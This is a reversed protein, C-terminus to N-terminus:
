KVEVYGFDIPEIVGDVLWQANDTAVVHLPFQMTHYSDATQPNASLAAKVTVLVDFRDGPKVKEQEVPATSFISLTMTSQYPSVKGPPKATFSSTTYGPLQGNNKTVVWANAFNTLMTGLTTSPEVSNVFVTEVDIPTSLTTDIRPWALLRYSGEREVFNMRYPVRVPKGGTPLLTAAIVYTWEGVDNQTESGEWDVSINNLSRVLPPFKAVTLEGMGPAASCSIMTDRAGTLWATLCGHAWFTANTSSKIDSFVDDRTTPWFLIAGAATCLAVFLALPGSVTTFWFVRRAVKDKVRIDSLAPVKKKGFRVPVGIGRPGRRRAM